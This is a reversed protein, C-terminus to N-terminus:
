LGEERWVRECCEPCMGHTFKTDTHEVIYREISKWEDDDHADRIRKCWACVPLLSELTRIQGLARELERAVEDRNRLLMQLKSVVVAATVLVLARSLANSVPIWPSSYSNELLRLYPESLLLDAVSGILASAIATGFGIWFGGRWTGIIVAFLYFPSLTLETGSVVDLVGVAAVLLLSLTALLFLSRRDEAPLARKVLEASVTSM